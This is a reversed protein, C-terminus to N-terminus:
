RRIRRRSRCRAWGTRSPATPASQCSPAPRRRNQRSRLGANPEAKGGRLRRLARDQDMFVCGPLLARLLCSSVRAVYAIRKRDVGGRALGRLGVVGAMHILHDALDQEGIRALAHAQGRKARAQAPQEERGHIRRQACGGLQNDRLREVLPEAVLDRYLVHRHSWRSARGAACHRPGGSGSPAM